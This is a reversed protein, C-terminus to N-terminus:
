YPMILFRKINTTHVEKGIISLPSLVLNQDISKQGFLLDIGKERITGATKKQIASLDSAFIVGALFLIKM